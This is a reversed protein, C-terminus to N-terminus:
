LIRYRRLFRQDIRDKWRWVWSGSFALSGWSAVAHRRGTSILALSIPRPRYTSLTQGAHVALLNHALISGQRVAHVGSKPLNWSTVAAVDGAAFVDAHSTSRLQADVRIFGRADLDLGSGRIWSPATAGTAWILEDFALEGGGRFRLQHDAVHSVEKRVHVVVGWRRLERLLLYRALPGLYEALQASSTVLHSQLPAGSRHAQHALALCIEIGAVGGGVIVLRRRSAKTTLREVAQLFPEAPKVKVGACSAGDIADVASTSGVDISLVDYPYEGGSECRVFRASTDIHQARTQMLRVADGCLAALDIRCQDLAYHGAVLGPLMGSYLTHRYPSILTVRADPVRLRVQRVVEVHAHGGGILVINRASPM